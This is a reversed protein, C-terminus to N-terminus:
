SHDCILNQVKLIKGQDRNGSVILFFFFITIPGPYSKYQYRFLFYKASELNKSSIEINLPFDLITSIAEFMDITSYDYYQIQIM